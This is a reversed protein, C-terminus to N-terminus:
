AYFRYEQGTGAENCTGRLVAAATMRPPLVIWWHHGELIDAPDNSSSMIEDNKQHDAIDVVNLVTTNPFMGLNCFM